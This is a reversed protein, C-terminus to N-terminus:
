QRANQLWADVDAALQAKAGDDLFSAHIGAKAIDALAHDDLGFVRRAKEYEGALPSAFMGPDDSNLTVTLGADRLANFPHADLDSIVGTAVNSTPCVELPIQRHRLEATLDDDDLVRIGHGIREAGLHDVARRVNEPGGTEGAHPVSHLGGERAKEFVPFLRDVPQNEDGGLGLAVVGADRHRLASALTSQALELPFGHVCDLVLRCRIGFDREGDAFGELVALVPMDWDDALLAHGALTFTVEAYRAGEAAEDECFEYAIRRFDSEHQLCAYAAIYNNIFDDFDAFVWEDGTLGPPVACGHSAAFERLTSPRVSGELHVHLDVKPLERLSRGNM